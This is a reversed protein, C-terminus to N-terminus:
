QFKSVPLKIIFETYEGEKTEVEITGGHGKTIIEYSLSLGLGTGQGAPKTTFFPQFIKEVLNRPIGMGNDNIRIEVYGNLQKSKASVVPEYEPPMIKKKESVSYFSNNFLNLFVRGIDQPIIFVKGIKQDFDTLISSNFSKEKARLGHFSLRLYEDALANIDTLEKQGTSKRSHMLMGKVISDARKGHHNIKLNNEKLIDAVHLGEALNGTKIEDKMEDILEANIDSFNNVFNLPNQIEHAIGATLEGLSAMKEQQILQTQANRLDELSHKLEKTRHMVKEELVTNQLKLSRSRYQVFSWLAFGFTLIFLTRAWWTQWWPPSIKIILVKEPGNFENGANSAQTILSYKGPNLGDYRITYYSPGYQWEESRNEGELKYRIHSKGNSYYDIIGTEISISNQDHSLSLETITNVGASLPFQKYNIQLDNFYVYSPSSSLYKEPFIQILGTKGIGLGSEGFYLNGQIDRSGPTFWDFFQPRYGDAETLNTIIGTVINLRGIQKQQNIYWLNGGNDTLMNLVGGNYGDMSTYKKIERFDKDFHILADDLSIWNTHDRKNYYLFFWNLSDLFYATKTWKGNINKFTYNFPFYPNKLFLLNDEELVIRGIFDKFPIVLDAFLSDKKIEFFGHNSDYVLLGDHYSQVMNAEINLTDLKKTGDRFKIPVWKGTTMNMEYIQNQPNVFLWLKQQSTDIYIPSIDSGKLDKPIKENLVEFKRSNSNFITPRGATALWIQNRDGPVIVGVDSSLSDKTDPKVPYFRASPKYPLLEYIGRNDWFTLWVIGDRDCYIQMNNEGTKKQLVTDSFLPSVHKTDPDYILVGKPHTALWIRGDRDIDVGVFRGYDKIKILESFADTFHFSKDRLSFELLGDPSNIWISNRKTDLRMAESDHHDKQINRYCTWGFHKKKGDDLSIQFLGGGPHRSDGNGGELFWISNSVSDYLGQNSQTIANTEEQTLSFLFKKQLSHIDYKVIRSVSEACYLDNRTCWFPITSKDASVSDVPTAFNKFTDAKIDYRSLGRTTGVWINKLSDEVLSTIGGDLITGTKKSSPLIKEFHVGDFRFLPSYAAGIWMFGRSDKLVYHIGSTLGDDSTWNIARYQDPNFEVKKPQAESYSSILFFMSVLFPKRFSKGPKMNKFEHLEYM